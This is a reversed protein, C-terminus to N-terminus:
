LQLTLRWLISDSIKIMKSFRDVVAADLAVSDSIKMIKSFGDIVAADLAV